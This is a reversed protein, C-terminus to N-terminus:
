ILYLRYGLLSLTFIRELVDYILFMHILMINKTCEIACILM